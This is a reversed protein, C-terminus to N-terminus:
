GGIEAKIRELERKAESVAERHSQTPPYLSGPRAERGNMAEYVGSLARAV